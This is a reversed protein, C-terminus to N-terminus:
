YAYFQGQPQENGEVQIYPSHYLQHPWSGGSYSLPSQSESQSDFSQPIVVGSPLQHSSMSAVQALSRHNEFQSQLTHSNLPPPHWASSKQPTAYHASTPNSNLNLGTLSLSTAQEAYLTPQIQSESHTRYLSPMAMGYRPPPREDEHLPEPTGGPTGASLTVVPQQIAELWNSMPNYDSSPSEVSPTIYGASTTAPRMFFNM